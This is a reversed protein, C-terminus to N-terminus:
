KKEKREFYKCTGLPHISGEVSTCTGYEEFDKPPPVFMTCDKCQDNFVIERYQAEAKTSKSEPM